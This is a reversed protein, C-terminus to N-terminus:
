YNERYLWAGQLPFGGIKKHLDSSDYLSDLRTMIILSLM